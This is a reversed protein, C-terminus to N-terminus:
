IGTSKLQNNFLVKWFLLFLIAARVKTRAAIPNLSELAGNAAV